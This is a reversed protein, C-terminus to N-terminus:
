WRSQARSGRRLTEKAERKAIDARISERDAQLRKRLREGAASTWPRQESSDRRKRFRRYGWLEHKFEDEIIKVMIADDLYGLAPIQDPILDEPNSFYAIAALVEQRVKKPAAYEEDQVLDTLDALTAIADLVFGPTKKSRRVRGVVQRAEHIVSEPELESAGRKAKRHLDRFYMADREDLEFTVKFKAAM